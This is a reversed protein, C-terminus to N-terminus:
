QAGEKQYFYLVGNLAPNVAAPAALMDAIAGVRVIRPAALDNYYYWRHTCGADPDQHRFFAAYHGSGGQEGLHVIVAYLAKDGVAESVEVPTTNKYPVPTRTFPGSVVVPGAQALEGAAQALQAADSVTVDGTPMGSVTVPIGLNVAETAVELLEDATDLAVASETAAPQLAMRVYTRSLHVVLLPPSADPIYTGNMSQTTADMVTDVADPSATLMPVEGDSTVQGVGFVQFLAALLEAPDSQTNAFTYGLGQAASVANLAGMINTCQLKPDARGEMNAHLRAQSITLAGVLPAVTPDTDSLLYRQTFGSFVVLLVFVVTNMYCMAGPNGFGLARRADQCETHVPVSSAAVSVDTGPVDVPMSQERPSQERPSQKLARYVGYGLAGALGLGVASSAAVVAVSDM